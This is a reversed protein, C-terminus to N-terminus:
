RLPVSSRVTTDSHVRYSDVPVGYGADSQRDARCGPGEEASQARGAEQRPPKGEGAEPQDFAYQEVENRAFSHM